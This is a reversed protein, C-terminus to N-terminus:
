FLFDDESLAAADVGKLVLKLGPLALFADPGEARIRLEAFGADFASLDIADEGPDFGRILDRGERPAFVFLDDGRGGILRDRGAGGELTDDGGGGRLIDPGVGGFLHDAGGGGAVRDRGDGGELRDEGDQGRLTDAGAAGRLLDDGAGGILRNAAVNGFVTDDGAGGRAHEILAREDGDFLDALYVNGSAFIAEAGGELRNLWARQGDEFVSAGGPSLDLSVGGGYNSLDFWDEGGGDWITMFIRNGGPAGQGAGDIFMEGTDPSWRYVNDGANHAYNAGYLQQIASIDAQMLTQAFGYRENAYGGEVADGLYARYTMVSYEMSDRDAPLAGPGQTEHGHKLGLAHGIEHLFTHWAYDGQRPAEFFGAATGFWADGGEGTAPLYAWATLPAASQALRIPANAAEAGTAEFFRLGSVAAFQAFAARAAEVQADNLPRFGNAAEGAGYEHVDGGAYAAASEPFAYALTAGSWKLGSVLGAGEPRDPWAFSATQASEPGHGRAACAGCCCAAAHHTGVAM